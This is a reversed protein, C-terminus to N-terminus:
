TKNNLVYFVYARWKQRITGPAPELCCPRNVSSTEEQPGTKQEAVLCSSHTVPLIIQIDRMM